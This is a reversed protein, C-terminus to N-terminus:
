GFVEKAKRVSDALREVESETNYLYYSARVTAPVGLKKVLVQSCHVGARVAIADGGLVMGIDHAHANRINFSVIGTRKSPSGYVDLGIEAFLDLTKKVLAHEHELIRSFGVSELYDIAKALGIAGGADPTGAEFKHPLDAWESKGKEVNTIMSGGYLFPPMKELLEQKGWLVGSGMPGLMKHGSFAYFDVGSRHVNLPIHPAGAAGDLVVLAGEKKAKKAWKEVDNVTGLVNSVHPFAFLATNSPFDFDALEGNGDVEVFHLEAKKRLCLQQWPVLNSHHDMETVVIADDEGISDSLSYALANLSETTNRTFITEKEKAGFHKGVRKRAKEYAETAEVSLDYSGRHVNAYSNLYFDRVADVVQVPKQSSAANDLYALTKGHYKKALIPFDKRIKEVDM